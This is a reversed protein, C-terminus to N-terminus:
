GKLAEAGGVIESIERTIGAQRARNIFLTLTGIMKAANDTASSMATMRAGHESATAELLAQYVQGEVYRPLLADLLVDAAPEFIYEEQLQDPPADEVTPPQIPLLQVETPKQSIASLFKTYVLVLKDIKETEFETWVARTIRKAEDFTVGTNNLTFEEGINFGRRRFFQIGKRGALYLKVRSKDYEKLLETARRLIASNYSGALGRDSTVVLFGINQPPRQALLPHQVEAGVASSLSTMMERMTAAYPRAATVRDQARKLRAAAVMKMAKTIQQINQAVKRRQRLQRITAM